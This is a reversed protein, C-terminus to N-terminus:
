AAMLAEIEEVTNPTDRSIIECGRAAVAAETKLASGIGRWKRSVASSVASSMADSVACNGPAAHIVPEATLATAIGRLDPNMGTSPNGSSM